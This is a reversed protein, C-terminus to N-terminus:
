GRPTKLTGELQDEKPHEVASVAEKGRDPGAKLLAGSELTKSWVRTRWQTASPNPRGGARLERPNRDKLTNERRPTGRSEGRSGEHAKEEDQRL